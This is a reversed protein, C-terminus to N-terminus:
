QTRSDILKKAAAFASEYAEQETGFTEEFSPMQLVAEKRGLKGFIDVRLISHRGPEPQTLVPQITFGRYGMETGM